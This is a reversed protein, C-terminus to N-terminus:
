KVPPSAPERTVPPVAPEEKVPPSASEKEVPPPSSPAPWFISEISACGPLGVTALVVM